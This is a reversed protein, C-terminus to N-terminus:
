LKKKGLRFLLTLYLGISSRAYCLMSCNLRGGGRRTRGGASVGCLNERMCFTFLLNMM